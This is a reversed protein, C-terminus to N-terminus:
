RRLADEVAAAVQPALTAAYTATVHDGARHVAVHGIVVPCQEGPCIVAHPRAPARRCGGRIGSAVADRQVALGSRAVASATDFSCRTLETPHRAACVDLDDPSVRATASSSSPCVPM